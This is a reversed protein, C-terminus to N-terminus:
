AILQYNIEVFQNSILLATVFYHLLKTANFNNQSVSWLVIKGRRLNKRTQLHWCLTFRNWHFVWSLQERHNKLAKNSIKWAVMSGRNMNEIYLVAPSMSKYYLELFWQLCVMVVKEVVRRFLKHDEMLLMCFTCYFFISLNRFVTLAEIVLVFAQPQIGYLSWVYLYLCM